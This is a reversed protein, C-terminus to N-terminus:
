NPNYSCSTNGLCRDANKRALLIIENDYVHNLAIDQHGIQFRHKNDTVRVVLIQQHTPFHVPRHKCANTPLLTDLENSFIENNLTVSEWLSFTALDSTYPMWRIFFEVSDTAWADSECTHLKKKPNKNVRTYNKQPNKNVRKVIIHSWTVNQTLAGSWDLTTSTSTHKCKYSTLGVIDLFDLQREIYRKEKRWKRWGRLNLRRHHSPKM